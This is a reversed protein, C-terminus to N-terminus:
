TLELCNLVMHFRVYIQVGFMRALTITPADENTYIVEYIDEKKLSLRTHNSIYSYEEGM